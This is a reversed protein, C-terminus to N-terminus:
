EHRDGLLNAARRFDAVALGFSAKVGPTAAECWVTADDAMSTIPWEIKSAFPKLGTELAEIRAFLAVVAPPDFTDLFEDEAPPGSAFAVLAIRKLEAIQDPTLGM